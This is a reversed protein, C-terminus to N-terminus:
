RPLAACRRKSRDRGPTGSVRQREESSSPTVVSRSSSTPASSTLIRRSRSSGVALEQEVGWGLFGVVFVVPQEVDPEVAAAEPRVPGADQQLLQPQHILVQPGMNGVPALEEVGLFPELLDLIQDGRIVGGGVEVALHDGHDGLGVLRFQEVQHPRDEVGPGFGPALDVEVIRGGHPALDLLEVEVNGEPLHDLRGEPVLFLVRRQLVEQEPEQQGVVGMVQLAVHRLRDTPQEQGAGAPRVGDDAQRLPPVAAALPGAVVPERRFRRRDELDFIVQRVQLDVLENVHHGEQGDLLPDGAAQPFPHLRGGVRDVGVVHPGDGGAPLGPMPGREGHGIGRVGWALRKVGDVVGEHRCRIEVGQPVQVLAAEVIGVGGAHVPGVLRLKVAEVLEVAVEALRCVRGLCCAPVDDLRQPGVDLGMVDVPIQGVQRQGPALEDLRLVPQQRLPLDVLNRVLVAEVVAVHPGPQFLGVVPSGEDDDAIGEAVFRGLFEGGFEVALVAELGRQRRLKAHQRRVRRQAHRAQQRVLRQGVFPGVHQHIALRADGAFPVADQLGHAPSAQM